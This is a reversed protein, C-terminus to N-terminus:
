RQCNIAWSIKCMLRNTSILKLHEDVLGKFEESKRQKKESLASSKLEEEQQSAEDEARAKKGVKEEAGLQAYTLFSVM